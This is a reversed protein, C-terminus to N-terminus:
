MAATATTPRTLATMTQHRWWRTRRQSLVMFSLFLHFIIFFLIIKNDPNNNSTNKKNKASSKDSLSLSQECRRREVLWFLFVLSLCFRFPVYRLSTDQRRQRLLGGWPEAQHVTEWLQLCLLTRCTLARFSQRVCSTRNWSSGPTFDCRHAATFFLLSLLLWASTEVLLCVNFMASSAIPFGLIRGLVCQM